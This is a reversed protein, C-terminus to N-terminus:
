AGKKEDPLYFLDKVEVNLADAIAPLHEARILKRRDNLMNSFDQATFGARVAVAGQKMGKMVILSKINNVIEEYGPYM